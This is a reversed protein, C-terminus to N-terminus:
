GRSVAAAIGGVFILTLLVYLGTGAGSLLGDISAFGNLPSIAVAASLITWIGLLLGAQFLIQISEGQLGSGLITLGALVAVAVVAGILVIYGAPGVASFGFTATGKQAGSVTGTPGIIAVEGTDM